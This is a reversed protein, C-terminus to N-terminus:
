RIIDERKRKEGDDERLIGRGRGVPETIKREQRQIREKVWM